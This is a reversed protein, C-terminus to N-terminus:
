QHIPTQTLLRFTLLLNYIISNKVGSQIGITTRLEASPKNGACSKYELSPKYCARSKADASTKNAFSWTTEVIENDNKNAKFQDISKGDTKKTQEAFNQM